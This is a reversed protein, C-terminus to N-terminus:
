KEKRKQFLGLRNVKFVKRFRGICAALIGGTSGAGAVIVATNAICVPCMHKGQLESSQPGMVDGPDYLPGIRIEANRTAEVNINTESGSIAFTSKTRSTLGIRSSRQTRHWPASTAMFCKRRLRLSRAIITMTGFRGSSLWSKRAARDPAMGGPPGLSEASSSSIKRFHIASPACQGFFTSSM